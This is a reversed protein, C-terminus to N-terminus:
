GAFVNAERGGYGPEVAFLAGSLPYRERDTFGGDQSGLATTIYLVDMQEGGFVCSTVKETPIPIEVMAVGTEPDYRAVRNGNWHAVWLKDQDDITMGDPYGWGEPIQVAVRPNSITGALAEFDYARVQRTASDIYYLTRDDATWALGNSCTVGGDLIRHLTLDPDLRYLSGAGDKCFRDMTGVWLRGASDCKGDNFRLTAEEPFNVLHEERGEALHFRKIGTDLALVVAGPDQTLVVTGPMGSLAFSREGHPEDRCHLSKGEIDVWYLRQVRADWLCGEGLSFPGKSVTNM